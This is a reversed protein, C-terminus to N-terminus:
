DFLRMQVWPAPGDRTPLGEIARNFQEIAYEFEKKAIIRQEGTPKRRKTSEFVAGCKPCIVGDRRGM